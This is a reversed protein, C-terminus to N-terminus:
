LRSTVGSPLYTMVLSSPTAPSPELLVSLTISAVALGGRRILVTETPSPGSPMAIEGSPLHSATGSSSPM